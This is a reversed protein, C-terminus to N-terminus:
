ASPSKEGLIHQNIYIVNELRNPQKTMCYPPTQIDKRELLCLIANVTGSGLFNKKKINRPLCSALMSVEALTFLFRRALETARTHMRTRQLVFVCLLIYVSNAKFELISSSLVCFSVFELLPHFWRIGGSHM